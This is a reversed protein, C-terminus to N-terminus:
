SGRPPTTPFRKSSRSLRGTPQATVNFRVVRRRHHRLVVFAFLVRFTATPVTFFDVAVIDRVHKGRFTRRTQARPEHHRVKCKDVAGKSAEYGIM